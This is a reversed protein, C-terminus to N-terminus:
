TGETQIVLGEGKVCVVFVDIGASGTQSALWSVPAGFASTQYKSRYLAAIPFGPDPHVLGGGSVAFEGAECDVLTSSPDSATRITVILTPATSLTTGDPFMLGGSASRVVGDVDLRSQPDSTGIGVKGDTNVRFLSAGARSVAFVSDAPLARLASSRGAGFGASAAVVLGVGTALGAFFGPM